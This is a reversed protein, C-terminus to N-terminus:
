EVAVIRDLLGRAKAEWDGKLAILSELAVRARKEDGTKLHANALLFKAEEEYLGGLNELAAIGGSTNGTELLCAGAFFRARESKMPSLLPLAAACDGKRYPVMAKEFAADDAGRQLVPSYAPREFTALAMIRTQRDVKAVTPAPTVVATPTPRMLLVGALVAAAIGVMWVWSKGAAAAKRRPRKLADRTLRMAEVDAFCADCGFYHAEFADMEEATLVGAVYSAALGNERAEECTM